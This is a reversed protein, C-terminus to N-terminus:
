GLAPKGLVQQLVIRWEEALLSNRWLGNAVQGNKRPVEQQDSIALQWNSRNFWTLPYGEFKGERKQHCSQTM